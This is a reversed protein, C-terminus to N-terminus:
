KGASIWDIGKKLQNLTFEEPSEKEPKFDYEWNAVPPMSLLISETRGGSVLGFKTGRDHVLNFEVYRGRRMLQWKKQQETVLEDKGLEIQTHYLQAFAKGLALCFELIKEKPLSTNEHSQHDFFIGGVGRTENRHGIFFYDDAWNKFTQYFSLDFSDCIEKLKLHFISARDPTVYHPTLDIGGGFWYTGNDLEFYRVNMHIIPIHPSKPHLVISVGTAFFSDGATGLQKKMESTVSGHVASFAVGGKEIINGNAITNTRGGGGEERKWDDMQFKGKGDFYELQNCIYEQLNKFEAHIFDKM